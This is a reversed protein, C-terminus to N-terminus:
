SGRAFECATNSSPQSETDCVFRDKWKTVGSSARLCLDVYMYAVYCHVCMMQLRLKCGLYNCSGLQLHCTYCTLNTDFTPDFNPFPFIVFYNLYHHSNNMLTRLIFFFYVPQLDHAHHSSLSFAPYYNEIELRMYLKMKYAECRHIM